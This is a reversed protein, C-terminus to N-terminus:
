PSVPSRVGAIDVVLVVFDSSKLQKFYTLTSSFPLPFALVITFTPFM